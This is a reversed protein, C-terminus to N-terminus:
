GNQILEIGERVMHQVDHKSVDVFECLALDEEIVEYIGLAEVNDFDESLIAKLLFTPYVDMPTVKEFTGTQVFARDEGNTNSDLVYEKNKGNMFSFLGWARHFSLVNKKPMIWGLFETHDGEPIVTLSNAYFSLYGDKEIKEGTLVNGSIYRVHDQKINGEVLKNIAGGSYTKYYQPTKVESGCVAVLRSADYKGQSFLKGIQAVGYPTLTWVIDGKNVPDLHHIQVGVNGAPHPGSFKNHEINDVGAFVKAVEANLDHNLHIKGDTFKKLINIGTKFADEEGQLTFAVDAALPHTDFTSIHIAKPSDNENAVIGFPRQIINPWVGAKLMQAQADNRSLGNIDSPSYSQFSEYEITKDALIKVELIKRKAGRKVEVIEGSVPSCYMVNEQMKDFLIPTGAKINDGENVLLKPRKMGVFDTPKIAFTEPYISDAIKHVAKGALNIDFGKKLKIIKSM